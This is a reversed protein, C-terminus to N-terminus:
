GAMRSTRFSSFSCVLWIVHCRWLFVRVPVAFLRSAFVAMSPSVQMVAMSDITTNVEIVVAYRDAPWHSGPWQLQRERRTVLGTRCEFSPSGWGAVYAM